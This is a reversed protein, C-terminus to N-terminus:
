ARSIKELPKWWRPVEKQQLPLRLMITAGGEARNRAQVEGRHVDVNRQVIALGLGNGNVKTTYYPDFLHAMHEEPIGDGQDDV